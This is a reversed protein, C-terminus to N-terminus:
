GAQFIDIDPINRAVLAFVSEARLTFLPDDVSCSVHESLDSQLTSLAAVAAFGNRPDPVGCSAYRM